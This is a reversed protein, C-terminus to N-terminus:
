RLLILFSCSFFVVPFVIRSIIDVKRATPAKNSQALMSTAIAQVLAIFVILTGMFIFEDLRTTYPVKPVHTDTAFRYAILTLMSTSAVGIQTGSNEPDIWFVSWSMMVILFLPMIVKLLYYEVLRKATFEFAYGAVGVGEVIFYPMNKAKIELIEWDPLSIDDSMFVGYQLGKDVYKKNPVFQIEEPEYAPAILQLRFKHKDFPFDHLKLSQSFTGIYRQKYNVTGDPQVKAIEPFTKRIMGVENVIQLNPNWINNLPYKVPGSGSHILRPDKWTLGIFVNAEFTQTASNISDIDVFGIVTEVTTPGTESRPRDIVKTSGTKLEADAGTSVMFLIFFAAAILKKNM